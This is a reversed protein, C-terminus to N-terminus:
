WHDWCHCAARRVLAQSPVSRCKVEVEIEVEIEVRFSRGTLLADKHISVVGDFILHGENMHLNLDILCPIGRTVTLRTAYLRIVVQGV